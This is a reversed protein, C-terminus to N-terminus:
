DNREIHKAPSSKSIRDGDHLRMRMEIESEDIGADTLYDDEETSEGSEDNM